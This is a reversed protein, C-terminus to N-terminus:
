VLEMVDVRQGERALTYWRLAQGAFFSGWSNVHNPRGGTFDSGFLFGGFQQGRDVQLRLLRAKALALEEDLHGRDLYGLSTLASGMRLVQALIDVREYPVTVRQSSAQTPMYGHMRLLREAYGYGRRVADLWDRREFTEAAVLLGELAYLHPHLHTEGGPLSPFAGSEDQQACVTELVRVVDQVEDGTTDSRAHRLAFVMLTKAQYGSFRTSWKGEHALPSHSRTELMPWLTGGEGRLRSRLSDCVEVVTDRLATDPKASSLRFLGAAAMGTDFGYLASRESEPSGVRNPVMRTSRDLAVDTLWRSAAWARELLDPDRAERALWCLTSIGYGTIEPYALHFSGRDLDYWDFFYGDPAQIGSDLLWSAFLSEPRASTRIVAAVDAAVTRHGM